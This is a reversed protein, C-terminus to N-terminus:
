TFDFDDDTTDLFSIDWDLDQENLGFRALYKKKKQCTCGYVWADHKMCYDDDLRITFHRCAKCCEMIKDRLVLEKYLASNKDM